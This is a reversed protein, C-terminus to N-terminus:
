GPTTSGVRGEEESEAISYLRSHPVHLYSDDELKVRVGRVKGSDSIREAAVTEERVGDPGDYVITAM